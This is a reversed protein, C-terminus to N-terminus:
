DVFEVSLYSNGKEGAEEKTDKFADKPEELLEDDEQTNTGLDTEENKL